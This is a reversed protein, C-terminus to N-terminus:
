QTVTTPARTKTAPEGCVYGRNYVSSCFQSFFGLQYGLGDNLLMKAVLAIQNVYSQQRLSSHDQALPVLQISLSDCM